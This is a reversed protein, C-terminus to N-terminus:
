AVKSSSELRVTATSGAPDSTDDSTEDRHPDAGPPPYATEGTETSRSVNSTMRTM